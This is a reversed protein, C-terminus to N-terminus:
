PPDDDGPAIRRRADELRAELEDVTKPWDDRLLRSLSRDRLLRGGTQCTPCYNTENDGHVLRQVSGQCAPCPKGHRGHVAMGKRFATVKTPFTDGYLARLQATWEVLTTRVADHLRATETADLNGTLQVPSLGAAHLIEDSYANGIGSFIRPDTLARKLTRNELTLRAAFAGLDLDLPDLGGPDLESLAARGRICHLSARRKTSAETLHLTGGPFDFAALGIRGPPRAGRTKWQFRGAIMLHIVLFLEDDLDWVIRKGIRELGVVTRGRIASIPPDVTRLLSPSSVRVRELVEGRIRAELAELYLVVDPFEPM